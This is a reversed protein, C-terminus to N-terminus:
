FLIFEGSVIGYITISIGFLLLFTSVWTNVSTWISTQKIQVIMANIMFDVASMMLISVAFPWEGVYNFFKLLLMTFIAISVVIGFIRYIMLRRKMAKDLENM